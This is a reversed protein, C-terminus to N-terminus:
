SAQMNLSKLVNAMEKSNIPIRENKLVIGAEELAERNLAEEICEDQELRGGITTLTKEYVDWALVLNGNDLLPVCHVGAIPKDTPLESIM